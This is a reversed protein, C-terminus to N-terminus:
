TTPKRRAQIIRLLHSALIIMEAAESADNIAVNRHSHPNKYSGLAGAVLNSLAQREPAVVTLDSLPGTDEHFAKRALGVGIEADSYNGAQRIAVEVEKYATFVAVDYEGRVFASWVKQEISPHLLQRPLIQERTLVIADSSAALQHGRRTVFVWGDDHLPLQAVCGSAELWAWGEMIARQVPEPLGQFRRSFNNRNPSGSDRRGEQAIVERLVLLALEEPELALLTDKDQAVENLGGM